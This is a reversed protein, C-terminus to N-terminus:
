APIVLVQGPQILDPNDLGNADAIRQYQNGDGYAKEAIAWLTDGPDVTWTQQAPAAPAEEVAAPAPTEVAAPTPVPRPNDTNTGSAWTSTGGSNYVVVNRDAQVVLRSGPNGSTDSSWVSNGSATYLVFNGDEQLTATTAESGNTGSAWVVDGGDNLVLNGDAQFVLSYGNESDLSQGVALNQGAQLTDM